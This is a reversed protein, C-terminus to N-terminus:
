CHWAGPLSIFYKACWSAENEWTLRAQSLRGSNKKPDLVPRSTVVLLLSYCSWNKMLRRSAFVSFSKRTRINARRFVNPLCPDTVAPRYTARFRVSLDNLQRKGKMAHYVYMSEFSDMANIEKKTEEDERRILNGGAIQQPPEQPPPQEKKSRFEEFFRLTADVLPTAGDSTQPLGAGRTWKLDDLESFLDWFPPSHVLLQLVANAFGM